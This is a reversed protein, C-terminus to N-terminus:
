SGCDVNAISTDVLADAVDDDADADAGADAAAAAAAAADAVAGAGAGRFNIKILLFGAKVM